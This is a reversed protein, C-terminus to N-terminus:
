DEAHDGELKAAMREYASNAVEKTKLRREIRAVAHDRLYEESLDIGISRRKLSMCVLSTTGSGLFPDLITCPVVSHKELPIRPVYRKVKQEVEETQREKGDLSGTIGNRNTPLSRDRNDDDEGTRELSVPRQVKVVEEVFRGHCECRPEWGVTGVTGVTGGLTSSFKGGTQTKSAKTQLHNENSQGKYKETVREWSAGCKACCGKQSTSALILPRILGSPYTAFHADSYGESTVDLGVLEDEVGCLGHPSEISEFWLDSNRFSRGNSQKDLM